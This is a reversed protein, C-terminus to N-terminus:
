RRVGRSKNIHAHLSLINGLTDRMEKRPVIMDLLGHELLFEASQFGPPLETGTVQRIVRPGAFGILANKEGIIIDGLSAFSASVGGTTPNTMVSIYLLGKENHKSIAQSTKAMQMLSFMGEQMRAGGSASFILLPLKKKISLEVTKSIKEGVTSGMSGMLYDTDMVAIALKINRISAIGCVVGEDLELKRRLSMQKEKYKPFKLPDRIKKERFYEIFSDEDVVSAIRERATMKFYKGCHPCLKNVHDMDEIFFLSECKPCKIVCDPGIDVKKVPKYSKHKFHELIM